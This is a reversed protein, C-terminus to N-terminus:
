LIYTGNTKMTDPDQDVVVVQPQNAVNINKLNKM